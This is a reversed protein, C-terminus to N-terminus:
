FMGMPPPAPGWVTLPTLNLRGRVPACVSAALSAHGARDVWVVSARFWSRNILTVAHALTWEMSLPDLLVHRAVTARLGPLLEGFRVLRDYKAQEQAARFDPHYLYQQRGAADIGTAQLKAAANPSIWVEQWAPPIVLGDIRDLKAQDTIPAGKATEYHFRKRGRRRWGGRRPM